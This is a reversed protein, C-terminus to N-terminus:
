RPTDVLEGTLFFMDWVTRAPKHTLVEFVAVENDKTRYTILDGVRPQRDPDMWGTFKLHIRKRRLWGRRVIHPEGSTELNDGWSQHGDMNFVTSM